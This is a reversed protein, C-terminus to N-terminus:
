GERELLCLRFRDHEVVVRWHELSCGEDPPDRRAAVAPPALLTTALMGLVLARVWKTM